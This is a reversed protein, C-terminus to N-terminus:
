ENYHRLLMLAEAYKARCESGRTMAHARIIEASRPHPYERCEQGYSKLAEIKLNLHHEQLINYYNPMFKNRIFSFSQDCSSFVEGVFVSQLNTLSGCPRAAITVAQFLSKHDQHNDSLFTTYLIHPNIKVLHEEVICKFGYPENYIDIEEMGIQYLQSYKLVERAKHSDANQTIYRPITGGRITTVIVEDGAEVHKAITGGFGLVEDDGHPVLVLVRSM